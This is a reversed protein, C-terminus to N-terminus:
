SARVASIDVMIRVEAPVRVIGQETQLRTAM